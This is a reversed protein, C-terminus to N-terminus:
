FNLGQKPNAAETIGMTPLLTTTLATGLPWTCSSFLYPSPSRPCPFGWIGTNGRRKHLLARTQHANLHSPPEATIINLASRTLLLICADDATQQTRYSIEDDDNCWIVTPISVRTKEKWKRCATYWGAVFWTPSCYCSRTIYHWPTSSTM